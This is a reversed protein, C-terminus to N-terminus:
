GHPPFEGQTCIGITVVLFPMLNNHPLGGGISGILNPNMVQPNTMQTAYFNPTPRQNAPNSWVDGAPTAVNAGSVAAPHHSHLALENSNLQVSVEGGAEGLDRPSLGPGQGAGMPSTGALNPVDFTTTGNGGYTVGTISFLATNRAISMVQGNCSAYGLPAFGCAFM